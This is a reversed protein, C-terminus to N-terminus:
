FAVVGEVMFGKIKGGNRIDTTPFDVYKQNMWEGKLLVTPTLFWGAGLQSRNVTVEDEMNAFRGNVTNYRAGLFFKDDAFRYLAEGAYQKWVRNEAETAARGSAREINGRLEVGGVKLFPNIVWAHQESKFGPQVNGTWASDKETGSSNVMVQYYRSGGRDGTYLSQNNSRAQSFMSGTLRFRVASSFEKDFGVKGLYAVSRREPATVQGRTEGGTAGGMIMWPGQRVYLEGGIETTFADMLLNGVFPNYIANGNDTRRFHEDGYNIEFHGARITVYKMVNELLANKIPSADVLLYGDKVWTEQHHRASLYSTMAVRIGPALQANLYLNAVANNFGHGLTMLQNTNVDKGNVNKIVADATNSHGVGQFQQTFAAGWNLKFGQFPVNDAKPAEYVNIGRQDVARMHQIEIPQALLPSSAKPKTKTSEPAASGGTTGTTGSSNSQAFAPTAIALAAIILAHRTPKMTCDERFM